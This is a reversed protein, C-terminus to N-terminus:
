GGTRRGISGLTTRVYEFFDAARVFYVKQGFFLTLFVADCRDVAYSKSALYFALRPAVVRELHEWGRDLLSVEYNVARGVQRTVRQRVQDILVNTKASPGSDFALNLLGSLRGM